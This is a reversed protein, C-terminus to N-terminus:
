CWTCVQKLASKITTDNLLGAMQLLPMLTALPGLPLQDVNGQALAASTLDASLISNLKTSFSDVENGAAAAAAAAAVTKAQEAGRTTRQNSSAPLPDDSIDASALAGLAPGLSPDLEALQQARIHLERYYSLRTLIHWFVQPRPPALPCTPQHPRLTSDPEARRTSVCSNLRQLRPYQQRRSCICPWHWAYRWHAGTLGCGGRCWPMRLWMVGPILHGAGVQDLSPLDHGYKEALVALGDSNGLAQRLLHAAVAVIAVLTYDQLCASPGATTVYPSKPFLAATILGTVSCLNPQLRPSDAYLSLNAQNPMHDTYLLLCRDVAVDVM